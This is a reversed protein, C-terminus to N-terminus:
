AADVPLTVTTSARLAEVDARNYRRHGGPTRFHPLRGDDAWAMVTTPHVAFLDAVQKTTLISDAM